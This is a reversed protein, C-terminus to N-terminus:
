YRRTITLHKLSKTPTYGLPLAVPKSGTVAPELGAVGALKQSITTLKYTQLNTIIIPTYGLPLAVPKSGTVAPELGAVGAMIMYVMILFTKNRM